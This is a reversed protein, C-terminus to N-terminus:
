EIVEDATALLTLPVALGLQKATKLNITLEFKNPAQVPLNGPNEGKLMRDLYGATRRFLDPTDVSYSMLGGAATFYRHPYVAPLRYQEALTVIQQRNETTFVDPFVVLATGGERGAAAVTSALAAADPVGRSVIEIGYSHAAAEISRLMGAYPATHPNFILAVKRTGPSLEKLLGLWKGGMSTEYNTFGTVNGGPRALNTVIGSAVPDVVQTFVIPITRTARQLARTAPTTNALLVDPALAILEATQADFSQDATLYRYDIHLNRGAIWGFERLVAIVVVNRRQVEPDLEALGMLWGIRRTREPPQARAGLPWAAAVGGLLTIFTRRKV